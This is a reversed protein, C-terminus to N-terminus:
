LYKDFIGKYYSQVSQLDVRNFFSSFAMWVAIGNLDRFHPPLYHPADVLGEQHKAYLLPIDEVHLKGVFLYPILFPKAVRIASRLFNYNEVFGKCYSIDKTFPAGGEM